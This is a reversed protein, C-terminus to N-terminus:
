ESRKLLWRPQDPFELAIPGAQRGLSHCAAALEFAPALCTRGYAHAHTPVEGARFAAGAPADSRELLPGGGPGLLFAAGGEALLTEPRSPDPRMGLRTHYYATMVPLDDAAVLLVEPCFGRDLWAEAVLLAGPVSHGIMSLTLSPGRIGFHIACAAMASNHVTSAFIMPSAAAHGGEFATDLFATNTSFSGFGTAVILGMAEREGAPRERVLASALLLAIKGFPDVRRLSRPPFHDKLAGLDAKLYPFPPAESLGRVEMATAPPVAARDLAAAFAAPGLGWATVTTWDRISITM